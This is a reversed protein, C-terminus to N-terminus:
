GFSKLSEVQSKGHLGKTRIFIRYEDFTMPQYQTPDDKMILQDAPEIVMDGRPNYFFALSVREKLSNVLVRHEISKYNGNSLVELQDGLNVIFANHIPKITVWGDNKRVQLGFVHDDPFLITLTGPDSHPSLGLALDPQPCTPYFNVRLSAGIQDGGVANELYDEQLGLNISLVKMLKGCLKLVEENYKAVLERCTSPQSPWKNEDRSSVPLYNLFFYDSWDLRAGKVVGVRSGYGEYTEPSNAYKQKEEVTLHFFERWVKQTEAMLQHSVGHNVVQFFGWERCADSILELTAKRLAADDSNIGSLDIVPINVENSEEVDVSPRDMIPKVYCDPIAEIGSESLSQVRVVPEPWRQLVNM